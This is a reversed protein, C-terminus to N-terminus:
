SRTWEDESSEDEYMNVGQNQLLFEKEQKHFMQARKRANRKRCSRVCMYMVLVLIFLVILLAFISFKQGYKEIQDNVYEKATEIVNQQEETISTENGAVKVEDTTDQSDPEESIEEVYEILAKDGDSTEEIIVIEDNKEEVKENILEEDSAVDLTEDVIVIEENQDEVEQSESSKSNTKKNKWTKKPKKTSQKIMEENSVASNETPEKVSDDVVIDKSDDKVDSNATPMDVDTKNSDNNEESADKSFDPDVIVENKNSEVEKSDDNEESDVNVSFGPDVEAVVSFKPDVEDEKNNNQLVVEESDENKNKTEEDTDESEVDENEEVPKVKAKFGEDFNNESDQQTRQLDQMQYKDKKNPILEVDVGNNDLVQDGRDLLVADEEVQDEDKFYKNNEDYDVWEGQNSTQDANEVYNNQDETPENQEVKNDEVIYDKLDNNESVESNELEIDETGYQSYNEEKNEQYNPESNEYIQDEDVVETKKPNAEIYDQANQENEINQEYDSGPQEDNYEPETQINGVNTNKTPKCSASVLLLAFLILYKM